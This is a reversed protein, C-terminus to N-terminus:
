GGNHDAWTEVAESALAVYARAQEIKANFGEASAMGLRDLFAAWHDAHEGTRSVQKVCAQWTYLMLWLM